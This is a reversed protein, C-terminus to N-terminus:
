KLKKGLREFVSVAATSDMQALRGETSSTVKTGAATRAMNKITVTFEPSGRSKTSSVKNDQTDAEISAPKGLRQRISVKAQSASQLRTTPVVGTTQVGKGPVTRSGTKPVALRRITTACAKAREKTILPLAPSEQASATPARKLVGVYQLVSGAEDDDSSEKQSVVEGLRSFVGTPKSGTTTDAKTEAGLRDFVSTRPLGKTAQQELIKKTKATTGKPMNIIYKGEMEATVRRRKVSNDPGPDAPRSLVAKKTALKNAVTVSIKSTTTEPRRLPTSPPSERSLSNTIMRSAPSGTTRKLEFQVNGPSPNISETAMKALEQKYVVKAHKLIAIIDGVATIGLENMIDKTLDMLMNKQIRNDVFSVAYNVAPGAPIGADKFFQIWESTALTVSVM